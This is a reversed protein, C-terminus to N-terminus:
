TVWEPKGRLGAESIGALRRAWGDEKKEWARLSPLSNDTLRDNERLPFGALAAQDPFQRTFAVVYEDALATVRAADPSPAASVLEAASLLVLAGLVGRM